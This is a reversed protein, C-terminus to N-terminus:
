NMYNINKKIPYRVINDDDLDEKFMNLAAIIIFERIGM